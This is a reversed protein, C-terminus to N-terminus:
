YHIEALIVYFMDKDTIFDVELTLGNIKGYTYLDCYLEYGCQTKLIRQQFPVYCPNDIIVPKNKEKGYRLAIYLDSKNLASYDFKDIFDDLNNQSLLIVAEEVFATIAKDPSQTIFIM